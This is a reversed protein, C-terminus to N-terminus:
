PRTTIKFTQTGIAKNSVRVVVAESKTHLRLITDGAPLSNLDEQSLLQGAMSYISIRTPGYGASASVRISYDGAARVQLTADRSVEALQDLVGVTASVEEALANTAQAYVPQGNDGLRLLDTTGAPLVSGTPSFVVLRVGGSTDRAQMQWHRNNLLLKVQAAKVGQLHLTFAAIEETSEIRVQRNDAYFRAAAPEDTEGNAKLRRPMHQASENDLVINVTCVIDQINITEDDANYTDDDYTNAAWLGFTSTNNSDLVYNLSRQVDNVDTLGNLNADGSTFHLQGRYASNRANTYNNGSSTIPIVVVEADQDATVKWGNSSFTYASLASSWTLTGITQNSLDRVSLQSHATFAQRSHNYTAIVPLDVTLDAAVNLAMPEMTDLGVFVKDNGYTRHQSTLDLTAIASPLVSSLENLQNYSLNLATLLPTKELDVFAAADGTLTNRSLNLSALLPLTPTTAASLTGSLGRGQLNIATVRGDDDFSVGSWNGDKIITATVDWAEGNWQSGGFDNYLKRLAALDDANMYFPQLEAVTTSMMQNNDDNSELVQTGADTVVFVRLQGAEVMPTTTEFVAEYSEGAALNGNRSLEALLTADAFNTSNVTYYLRDTWSSEVTAGDGQNTVTARVTLANGAQAAEPLTITTVALDPLLRGILTMAASTLEDCAGLATVTWTYTRGTEVTLTCSTTETEITQTVPDAESDATPRSSVTVTYGTADGIAGWSLTTEGPDLSSGNAPQLGTFSQRSVSAHVIYTYDYTTLVRGGNDSLTVAVVLSDVQQGTNTLTMATLDGTGNTDYGTIATGAHPQAAWSVQVASSIGSLAVPLTTSGDCLEEHRVSSASFDYATGNITLAVHTTAIHSFLGVVTPLAEDTTTITLSNGSGEPATFTISREDRSTNTEDLRTAITGLLGIVDDTTADLAYDTNTGVVSITVDDGVGRDSFDAFLDSLSQYNRNSLSTEAASNLTYNGEVDVLVDTVITPGWGQTGFFRISLISSGHAEETPIEINELNVEQGPTIPIPTGHGFGPDDGWFYEAYLIQQATYEGKVLVNQTITPGWGKSGYARISLQHEGADLGDTPIELNALTMEQGPTFPIATGHGFGPDDDWFYEVCLIQQATYEGKVLVSQTITPGWGKSGYARIGLLHEGPDLGDTPIELSTLTMEQGPTFPIATGHGFGPDDDWFYEVCLIQQATYEGKVLVSQTITPGFATHSVGQDDTTTSYSRIGILHEGPTLGSTPVDFQLTGDTGIAATVTTAQGMGPDADIFYETQVQAKLVLPMCITAIVVVAWRCLPHHLPNNM